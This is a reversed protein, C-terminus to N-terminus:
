LAGGLEDGLVHLVHARHADAVDLGGLLLDDIDDAAEFVGAFDDDGAAAAFLLHHYSGLSGPIAQGARGPRAPRPGAHSGPAARTSSIPTMAWPKKFSGMPRMLDSEAGAARWGKEIFSMSTWARVMRARARWCASINSASDWRSASARLCAA